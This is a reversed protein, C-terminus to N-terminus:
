LGQAGILGSRTTILVYEETGSTRGKNVSTGRGAISKWFLREGSTWMELKSRHKLALELAGKVKFLYTVYVM